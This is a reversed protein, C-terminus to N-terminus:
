KFTQFLNEITEDSCDYISLFNEISNKDMKTFVFYEQYVSEEKLLDNLFSIKEINKENEAVLQYSIFIDNSDLDFGFSLPAKEFSMVLLSNKYKIQGPFIRSRTKGSSWFTLNFEVKSDSLFTIFYKNNNNNWVTNEFGNIIDNAERQSIQGEKKGQCSLVLIVFLIALGYFSIFNVTKIKGIGRNSRENVGKVASITKM